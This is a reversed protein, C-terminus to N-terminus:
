LLERIRAIRELERIDVLYGHAKTQVADLFINFLVSATNLTAACENKHKRLAVTESENNESLFIDLTKKDMGTIRLLEDLAATIEYDLSDILSILHTNENISDSIASFDEAELLSSQLSCRNAIQTLLDKKGDYLEGLKKFILATDARM